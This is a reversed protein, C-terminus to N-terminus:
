RTAFFSKEVPTSARTIPRNMDLPWSVEQDREADVRAKETAVSQQQSTAAPSGGMKDIREKQIGVAKTLTALTGSMEKLTAVIAPDVVPAAPPPPPPTKGKATAAFSPTVETPTEEEVPDSVESLLEVLATVGTRLKEQRAQSLKRGAKTVADEPDPPANVSALKVIAALADTLEKPTEAADAVEAAEISKAVGATADQLGKVVAALDAKAKATLKMAPVKGEPAKSTDHKVVLFKRQNAPRDVVSVEHVEIDTLRHTQPEVVAEDAKSVRVKRRMQM